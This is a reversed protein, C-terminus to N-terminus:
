IVEILVNMPTRETILYMQFFLVLERGQPTNVLFRGFSILINGKQGSPSKKKKEKKIYFSFVLVLSVALVLSTHM